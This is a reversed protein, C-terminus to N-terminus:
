KLLAQNSIVLICNKVIAQTITTLGAGPTSLDIGNHNYFGPDQVKILIEKQRQSLDGSLIKFKQAIGNPYRWQSAEFDLLITERTYSRAKHLSYIYYVSIGLVTITLVFGFYKFFKKM